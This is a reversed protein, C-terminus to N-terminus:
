GDGITGGGTLTGVFGGGWGHSDGCSHGEM